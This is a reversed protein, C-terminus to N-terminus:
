AYAQMQEIPMHFLLLVYFPVNELCEQICALVLCQMKRSRRVISEIALHVKM